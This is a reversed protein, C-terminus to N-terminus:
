GSIGTNGGRNKVVNDFLSGANESPPSTSNEQTSSLVDNPSNKLLEKLRVTDAAEVFTDMYDKAISEEFDGGENAKNLMRYIEQNGMGLARAQMWYNAADQRDAATFWGEEDFVNQIHKTLEADSYNKADADAIKELRRKQYKTEEAAATVGSIDNIQTIFKKADATSNGSNKVKAYFDTKSVLGTKPDKPLEAHIRSIEEEATIGADRKLTQTIENIQASTYNKKPDDKLSQVFGTIEDETAQFDAASGEGAVIPAIGSGSIDGQVARNRLYDSQENESKTLNFETQKRQNQKDIQAQFVNAQAPTPASDRLQTLQVVSQGLAAEGATRVNGQETYVRDAETIGRQKTLEGRINDDIKNLANNIQNKDVNGFVGQAGGAEKMQALLSAKSDETNVQSIATLADQTRTDKEEIEASRFKDFSSAAGQFPQNLSQGARAFIKSPDGFTSGGTNPNFRIQAM